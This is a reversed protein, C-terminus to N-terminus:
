PTVRRFHDLLMTLEQSEERSRLYVLSIDFEECDTIEKFVVGPEEISHAAAASIISIGMHRRVLDIAMASRNVYLIPKTLSIHRHPNNGLQIYDEGALDDVYLEAKDALPHGLPLVAMLTTTLIKLFQLQEWWQAVATHPTPKESAIIATCKGDLLSQYLSSEDDECIRVRYLSQSRSFAALPVSISATSAFPAIGISILQEKQTYKPFLSNSYENQVAVIRRAYPLFEQGFATLQVRRHSRDLLDQGFEKEIAKIHKSLASQSIYLQDAAEQFQLTDALVVFDQLYNLEM